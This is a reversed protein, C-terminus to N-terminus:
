NPKPRTGMKAGLHEHCNICFIISLTWSSAALEFGCNRWKKVSFEDKGGVSAASRHSWLLWSLSVGFALPLWWILGRLSLSTFQGWMQERMRLFWTRTKKSDLKLESMWGLRSGKWPAILWIWGCWKIEWNSFEFWKLCGAKMKIAREWKKVMSCNCFFTSSM